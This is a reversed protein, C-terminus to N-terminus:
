GSNRAFRKMGHLCTMRFYLTLYCAFGYGYVVMMRCRSSSVHPAVYWAKLSVEQISEYLQASAFWEKSNYLCTAANRLHRQFLNDPTTACQLFLSAAQQCLQRSVKPQDNAKRAKSVLSFAEAEMALVEEGCKGYCKQAPEWLRKKMFYDGRSKWEEPTSEQVFVKDVDAGTMDSVSLSQVFGKKMLFYYMPSHKAPDTDYIWLNCKARTVATYFYKLEANICRHQNQDFKVPRLVSQDLIPFDNEIPVGEISTLYQM